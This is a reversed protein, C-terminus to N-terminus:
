GLVQGTRIESHRLPRALAVFVYQHGRNLILYIL